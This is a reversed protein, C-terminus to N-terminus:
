LKTLKCISIGSGGNIVYKLHQANNPPLRVVITHDLLWFIFFNRVLDCMIKEPNRTHKVWSHNKLSASKSLTSGKVHSPWSFIRLQTYKYFYINLKFHSILETQYLYEIITYYTFYISNFFYCTGVSRYNKILIIKYDQKYISANSLIFASYYIYM